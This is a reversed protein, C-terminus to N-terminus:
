QSLKKGTRCQCGRAARAGKYGQGCYQCYRTLSPAPGPKSKPRPNSVVEGWKFQELFADLTGYRAYIRALATDLEINERTPM